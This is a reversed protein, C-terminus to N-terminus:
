DQPLSSQQEADMCEPKREPFGVCCGAISLGDEGSLGSWSEDSEVRVTQTIMAASLKTDM